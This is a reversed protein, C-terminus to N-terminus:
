SLKYVLLHDSDGFGVVLTGDTSRFSVCRPRCIGDKSSLLTKHIKGAATIIQVTKSSYGCVIVNDSDDIFLGYPEILGDQSVKNKYQYVEKGDSCLCWIIGTNWDSVFVKDGSRSVAVYYPRFFLSSGDPNIGLREKLKMEKIDYVRIESTDEDPYKYCSVFVKGAAVDIGRCEVDVDVTRRIRLSPLVETFHLQKKDHMTVIITSSEVAAIDLPKGPMVLCDKLSLSTDLVKLLNNSIDCLVLEGRPMFCCANIAVKRDGCIKIDKIKQVKSTLLINSIGYQGTQFDAAAKSAGGDDCPETLHNTKELGDYSQPKTDGNANPLSDGESPKTSLKGLEVSIDSPTTSDSYLNASKSVINHNRLERFKGHSEKCDDCIWSACDKCFCNAESKRGDANCLGCIKKM